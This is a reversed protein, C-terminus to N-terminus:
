YFNNNTNNRLVKRTPSTHIKNHIDTIKISFHLSTTTKNRIHNETFNRRKIGDNQKM